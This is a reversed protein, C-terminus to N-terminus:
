NGDSRRACTCCAAIAETCANKADTCKGEAWNDGPLDRALRCISDANTCISRTVTCVDSCVPPRVESGDPCVVGKESPRAVDSGRSAATTPQDASAPAPATADAVSLEGRLSESESVRARLEEIEHWMREIQAHATSLHPMAPEQAAPARWEKRAPSACSGSFVAASVSALAACAGINIM